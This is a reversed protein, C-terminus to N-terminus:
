KKKEIEVVLNDYCMYYNGKNLTSLDMDRGYGKKVVSGFYDYVEYATESSFNITKYDKAITYSPKEMLSTTTVAESIRPSSQGSGIQKVRFKNEGSHTTVVFSYDHAEPTGEGMVEGVYVWKNWKFQEIIYPLQGVESKASWKLVNDATININIIEFSPKPKLVEPNLIKPTCDDKHEIEILVKAGFSLKYSSLDVEFASSNVEDTTVSGNVRVQYACFGVGSKNFGNQIYINKNQYKGEVLLVKNAFASFSVFSFIIISLLNLNTSTKKNNM